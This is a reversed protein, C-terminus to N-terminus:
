PTVALRRREIARFGGPTVGAHRRFFRNFYAPDAFGLGYAIAQIPTPTFVLDRRAAEMVQLTALGQVSCGTTARAIRNLHAASVGLAEAYFGTPQHERFHAAILTTLAELRRSDRDALGADEADGSGARMLGVLTTAILPELMLMRGAARGSVEAHLRHVGDRALAANGDNEELRVIRTEAAFAALQRDAAALSHLRDALATVVLGDVDRSYRFGHVAGPPIFLACPSAFRRRRAGGLIEGEGHTLLFIQFFADHRHPSIEWDHLHTREPITECHIWFDASEGSEERYLRYSPIGSAM